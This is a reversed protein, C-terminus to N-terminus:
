RIVGWLYTNELGIDGKKGGFHAIYPVAPERLQYSDGAETSKRGIALAGMLSKVREVFSRNGIAISTTWKDDRINNGNGLFDDVW